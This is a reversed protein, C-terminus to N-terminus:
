KSEEAPEDKDFVEPFLEVLQSYILSAVERMQPHAKPSTRLGLFHLWERLNATMVLETKTSNSLVSRALEPPAGSEIMRNYALEAHLMADQWITKQYDTMQFATAPDLVAMGRKGYNVYRTSEQSFSAIRHRVLEHSVGRDCVVRFSAQAHEIVSLHGRNILMRIFPRGTKKDESKYCIRGALEVRSLDLLAQERSLPYIIEAKAAVTVLNSNM